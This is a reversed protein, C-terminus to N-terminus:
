YYVDMTIKINEPLAQLSGKSSQTKNGESITVLEQQGSTVKLEYGKVFSGQKVNWSEKSIDKLTDNLVQCNSKGNLCVDEKECGKILEEINLFGSYTECSTTYYVTAQLFSEVEYSEISTGNQKVSLSLFVLIIVAVIIIILGFGVMEEQANKSKWFKM